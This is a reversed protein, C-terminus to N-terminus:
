KSMKESSLRGNESLIEVKESIDDLIKGKQILESQTDYVTKLFTHNIFNFDFVDSYKTLLRHVYEVKFEGFDIIDFLVSAQRGFKDLCVFLLEIFEDKRENPLNLQYKTIIRHLSYFPILFFEEDNVHDYNM